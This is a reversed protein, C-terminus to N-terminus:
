LVIKDLIMHIQEEDLDYFDIIIDTTGYSIVTETETPIYVIEETSLENGFNIDWLEFEKGSESVYSRKNEYKADGLSTMVLGGGSDNMSYQINIWGGKYGMMSCLTKTGPAISNDESKYTGCYTEYTGMERQKFGETDKFLHEFGEAEEAKMYDDYYRREVTYEYSDAKYAIEKKETWLDGEGPKEEKVVTETLEPIGELQLLETDVKASNIQKQSINDTTIMFDDVNVKRFLHSAAYVSIAGGLSCIVLIAAAKPLFGLTKIKKGNKKVAKGDNKECVNLISQNLQDSAAASPELARQLLGDIEKNEM